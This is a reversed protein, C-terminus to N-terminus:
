CIGHYIPGQYPEWPSERKIPASSRTQIPSRLPVSRPSIQPEAIEDSASLRGTVHYKWRMLGSFLEQLYQPTKPLPTEHRSRPINVIFKINDDKWSISLHENLIWEQQDRVRDLDVGQILNVDGIVWNLGPGSITIIPDLGDSDVYNFDLFERQSSSM